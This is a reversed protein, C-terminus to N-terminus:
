CNQLLITKVTTIGPARVGIISTIYVLVRRIEDSSVFLGEGAATGPPADSTGQVAANWPNILNRSVGATRAACPRVLTNFPLLGHGQGAPKGLHHM